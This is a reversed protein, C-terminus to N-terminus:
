REGYLALAGDWWSAGETLSLEQSLPTGRGDMVQEAYHAAMVRGQDGVYATIRIDDSVTNLFAKLRELEGRRTM